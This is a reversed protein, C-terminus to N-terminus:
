AAQRTTAPKGIFRKGFLRVALGKLAKIFSHATPQMLRLRTYSFAQILLTADKELRLTQGDALVIDRGDMTLWIAGSELALVAGRRAPLSILMDQQLAHTRHM